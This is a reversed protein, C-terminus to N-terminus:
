QIRIGQANYKTEGVIIVLQQNEIMKRAGATAPKQYPTPVFPCSETEEGDSTSVVVSYQASLDLGGAEYYYSLTAGDIPQGNKQWQFTQLQLGDLKDAKYVSLVDGWRQFIMNRCPRTMEETHTVVCGYDNYFDFVFSGGNLGTLLTDAAAHREGNLMYYDYGTGSVRFEGTYEADGVIDKMVVVPLLSDLVTVPIWITSDCGFRNTKFRVFNGSTTYKYCDGDICLPEEACVTTDPLYVKDQPHLHLTWTYASDCGAQSKWAVHYSREEAAYFISDSYKDGIQIYGGQCITTDILTHTDGIQPVDFFLTTDGHCAGDAIYAQLTAWYRGGAEPLELLPNEDDYRLTDAGGLRCITWEYNECKEDYHHESKGNYQTFIHSHNILRVRNRCESPEYRYEAEAVPTRPYNATSLSFQCDPSETSTLVCTYTTTDSPALTLTLSKGGQEEALPQMRNNYWQYSFGEPANIKIESEEACSNSYIKAAACGLTFYAYGYHGSQACDYTTLRIIIDEGDFEELNLGVTTWEKWCVPIKGRTNKGEYTHWGPTTADRDAAFYVYGCTPDVLEDGRMIELKFHPQEAERHGPDEMVIAYKLLLIAANDADVHFKYSIAEAEAGINWNGLRVSALEGPPILPLAYGTRADYMDTEWNVSHRSYQDSYGNDIVGEYSYPNNFSGFQCLTTLTDELDVYNLCHKEPCFVVFNNLYRWASEVTDNCIGRVRFTYMGESLNEIILNQRTIHTRSIWRENGTRKYELAYEAATGTWRLELSDCNIVSAELSSPIGCDASTIQINDICASLPVQLTTDTNASAWIFFLRLPRIGNSSIFQASSGSSTIIQNRWRTADSMSMCEPIIYKSLEGTVVSKGPAAEMAPLVSVPAIGAWLGANGTDGGKCRWDFSIVYYGKPLVMDRYAYQINPKSGFRAEEGGNCSIYLARKGGNNTAEGVVWQDTCESAQAGPNLVWNSIEAAESEEFGLQYPISISQASLLWTSCLAVSLVCVKGIIGSIINKM